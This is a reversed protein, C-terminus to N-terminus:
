VSPTWKGGQKTAIASSPLWKGNIKVSATAPLWSNQLKVHAGGGTTIFSLKGTSVDNMTLLAVTGRLTSAVVQGRGAYAIKGLESLTTTEASTIAGGSTRIDSIQVPSSTGSGAAVFALVKSTSLRVISATQYYQNPNSGWVALTACSALTASSGFFEYTAVMTKYSGDEVALWSVIAGNNPGPAVAMTQRAYATSPNPLQTTSLVTLSAAQSDLSLHVLTPPGDSDSTGNGFILAITGDDLVAAQTWEAAHRATGGIKAPTGGNVIGYVGDQMGGPLTELMAGDSEVVNTTYVLALNDASTGFSTSAVTLGDVTVTALYLYTSTSNSRKAIIAVAVTGDSKLTASLSSVNGASGRPITFDDGWVIQSGDLRAVKAHVDNGHVTLLVADTRNIQVVASTAYSTFNPSATVDATATIEFSM